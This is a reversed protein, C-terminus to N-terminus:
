CHCDEGAVTPTRQAQEALLDPFLRPTGGGALPLDALLALVALRAQGVQASLPASRPHVRSRTPTLRLLRACRPSGWGVVKAESRSALACLRRKRTPTRLM